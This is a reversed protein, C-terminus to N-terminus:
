IWWTNHSLANYNILFKNLPFEKQNLIMKNTVNNSYYQGHPIEIDLIASGDTEDKSIKLLLPEKAINSNGYDFFYQGKKNHKHTIYKANVSQTLTKIQESELLNPNTLTLFM